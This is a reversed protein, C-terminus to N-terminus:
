KSSHNCSGNCGDGSNSCSDARVINMEYNITIVADKLNNILSQNKYDQSTKRKYNKMEFIKIFM